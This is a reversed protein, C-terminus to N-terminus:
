PLLVTSGTTRRAELAEHAKATDALPFRQGISITITADLLRDFLLRSAGLLKKRTEVFDFLTPRTVYLSHRKALEAPSFPEVPGSANGFSVMVGHPRLCDLSQYFTDKGVSDYVAAVGDGGALERVKAVFDDDDARVVHNCGQSLAKNEKEATSVVGIVVAGLARAWQTAISGVGGAAAYFLIPEGPQVRYSSHLLYWATLGKLLVAAALEDSIGEPIPVLRDAPYNRREACAGPPGGVYAVRDGVEVDAVDEGVAEVVAAAETGLGSPLEVPYLGTRHYTDIFNLGIATHRLRVEGAAPEDIDIEVYDLVEPGGFEHIRIAHTQM